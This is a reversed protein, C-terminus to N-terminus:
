KLPIASIAGIPPTDAKVWLHKSKQNHLNLTTEADIDEKLYYQMWAIIDSGIVDHLLRLNLIGWSFHHATQYEFYAKHINDPLLNFETEAMEQTVYVDKEAAQLLTASKIGNLHTFQEHWPAMVITSKIKNGLINAALLAGGGGKSHGCVQLRNLDIKQYLLGGEGNIKELEAIGSLHADQWGTNKGFIDIPTLALVIFDNEVMLESMWNLVWHKASYGSTLTTAPLPKNIHCPYFLTASDTNRVTLEVSCVLPNKRPYALVVTLTIVILAVVIHRSKFINM